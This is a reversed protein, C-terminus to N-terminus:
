FLSPIFFIILSPQARIYLKFAILWTYNLINLRCLYALFYHVIYDYAYEEKVIVKNTATNHNSLLTFDIFDM